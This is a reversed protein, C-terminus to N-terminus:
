EAGGETQVAPGPSRDRGEFLNIIMILARVLHYACKWPTGKDEVKVRGDRHLREYWEGFEGDFFNEKCFLHLREFEKFYLEEGTLTYAMAFSCLAESNAWWVKDDWLSNTEKYWDIAVPEKGAADVYSFIGGYDKDVGWEIGWKIIEAARRIIDADGRKRGINMCFWMSELTHGPNIFRGHPEDLSVQNERTVAEFVLKYEDKAFWNLIKDLCYDILSDARSGLTDGATDAASLATLYLDHWIFKESWTNEYIDKFDPDKINKELADFCENLLKMGEERGCGTARMYESVAQIAYCDTFVSITGAKVDGKQGLHYYFRGQGAYARKTLYDYGWEAMRLWEERQEIRNYLFGYTYTQRAQFWVYKDFDTPRGERDFCLQFGGNETDICRSDWFPMVDKLLHDRYYGAYFNIKDLKDM